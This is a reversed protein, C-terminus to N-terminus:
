FAVSVGAKAAHSKSGGRFSGDYGVWLHVKDSVAADLSGGLEAVTKGVGPGVATMVPGNLASAFVLDATGSADGSDSAVRAYYRPTLTIGGLDFKATVEAGGYIRTRTVTQNLGILPTPGGVETFRSLNASGHRVGAVLKATAAGFPV